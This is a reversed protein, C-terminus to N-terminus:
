IIGGKKILAELLFLNKGVDKNFTYLAIHTDAFAMTMFNRGTLRIAM